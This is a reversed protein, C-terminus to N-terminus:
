NIFCIFASASGRYACRKAWFRKSTSITKSSIVEILKILSKKSRILNYNGDGLIGKM